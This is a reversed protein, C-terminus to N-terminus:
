AKASAWSYGHGSDVSLPVVLDESFPHEMREVATEEAERINEEPVEFLLEDHVQLLLDAGLENLKPDNDCLIMAMKAVDAASGQIISNVSQRECQAMIAKESGRMDYRNLMGLHQMEPFRRPRGLITEVGHEFKIAHHTGYIFDKVSPYPKFYQEKYQAAREMSVGLQKALKKIGEGYNLTCNGPKGPCQSYRRPTYTRYSTPRVGKAQRTLSRKRSHSGLRISVPPVNLAVQRDGRTSVSRRAVCCPIAKHVASLNGRKSCTKSRGLHQGFGISKSAQRAFCMEGELATLVISPDKAARKKKKNAAIIDEYKFGFMLSATGTHIDWGKNIVDIMNKDGSFHALLRMELQEYDIVLLTHNEKPMFAYRIGWKDSGPRPVNMLNPDVSSLRGTVTVHQTMTPHIRLDGDVWKRLGDVYTGRMKTLKRIELVKDAAEIGEDAFRNLVSADTSPSQKGSAGGKTYKVPKLGLREFFLWQLQKPSNPNIEKSAMKNLDAQAQNISNTLIPSLEELYGVDVMIGRRCCNHLVRTFPMETGVFYDWLPWGGSSQERELQDKLYKFVRFTAYADFSAYSHAKAPTELMAKILVDQISEGRERPFTEKFDKMRLGLHDWATEKLGHRGQRNEDHLWDMALTCFSDGEPVRVGSNVLMSFDFTQNTFYWKIDTDQSLEKDYIHLM